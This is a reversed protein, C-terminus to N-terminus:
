QPKGYIKWLEYPEWIFGAQELATMSIGDSYMIYIGDPDIEGPLNFHYPGYSNDWQKEALWLKHNEPRRLLTYIYPHVVNDDFPDVYIERNQGPFKEDIYDLMPILSDNFYQQPYIQQPYDQYYFRAFSLFLLLYLGAVASSVIYLSRKGMRKHVANGCLLIGQITFYLLPFYIANMRNINPGSM